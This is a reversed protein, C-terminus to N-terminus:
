DIVTISPFRLHHMCERLILLTAAFAPSGPLGTRVAPIGASMSALREFIREVLEIDLVMEPADHVGGLLAIARVAADMTFLTSGAAAIERAPLLADEVATIAQELEGAIPPSHRFFETATRASGIGLALITEAEADRGTALATQDDGIYLVTIKVGGAVGFRIASYRQRIELDIGIASDGKM